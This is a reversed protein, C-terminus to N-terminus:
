YGSDNTGSHISKIEFSQKINEAVKPANVPDVQIDDKNSLNLQYEGDFIKLVDMEINISQENQNISLSHNLDLNIVKYNDLNEGHSGVHYLFNQFENENATTYSGEFKLFKYGAAWAWLMDTEEATPIFNDVGNLPYNSQDVGFGFHIKSYDGVPIESLDISLSGEDAENIVFYSDEVPYTFVDGNEQTLQINSIIYKLENIKITENGYKGYTQTNLVLEQSGVKNDFTIQINGLVDNTSDDPINTSDDSCSSLVIVMVILLVDLKKM